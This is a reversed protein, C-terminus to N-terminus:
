SPNWAREQLTIELSGVEIGSSAKTVRLLSMRVGLSRLPGVEQAEQM